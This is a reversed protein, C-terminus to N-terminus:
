GKEGRKDKDTAAEAKAAEKERLREVDDSSPRIAMGSKGTGAEGYHRDATKTSSHGFLAAIEIASLGAIKADEHFQHRGSYLTPYVKRGPWLARTVRHLTKRINDYYIEWAESSNSFPKCSHIQGELMAKQWSELDSVNLERDIGNSRDNTDKANNVVLMARGDEENYQATRWEVPRLGTLMNTYLFVFARMPWKGKRKKIYNYLEQLDPQSISKAKQRSTRRRAKIETEDGVFSNSKMACTKKVADHISSHYFAHGPNEQISQLFFRVSAIYLRRTPPLCTPLFSEFWDVFLAPFMQDSDMQFEDCARRWLRYGTAWYRAQTELTKTPAEAM